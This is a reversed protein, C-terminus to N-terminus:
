IGTYRYTLELGYVRGKALPSFAGGVANIGHRVQNPLNKGYLGVVWQSDNLHIDM